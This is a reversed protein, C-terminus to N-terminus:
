LFPEAKAHARGALQKIFTARFRPMHELAAFGLTRAIVSVCGQRRFFQVFAQSLGITSFQDQAQAKEYNKLTELAGIDQGRAVALKLQEALRLADRVSLNFGQGAVPHLFHAANGMLVVRRRVQEQALVRVLPYVKPSSIARLTGLRYGFRAQVSQLLQAPPLALMDASENENVTWVMASLNSDATRGLPLFAMPGPKDFREFARGQHALESEVNAVIAHQQYDFRQAQIGLSQRTMSESGDAVLVLHSQIVEGSDCSLTAFDQTFSVDCVRSPTICEIQSNLLARSLCVGMGKNELVYGLPEGHNDQRDFVTLGPHGSDSVHISEIATAVSALESWLGLEKFLAVSSPALATSRQDFGPQAPAAQAPEAVIPESEILTVKVHPLARQLILALAAGVMGGGIIAVDSSRTKVKEKRQEPM